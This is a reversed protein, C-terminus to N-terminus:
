QAKLLQRTTKDWRITRTALRHNGHCDTCTKSGTGALVEKHQSKRGIDTSYTSIWPRSGPVPRGTVSRTTGYRRSHLESAPM